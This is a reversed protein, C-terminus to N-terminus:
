LNFLYVFFVCTTIQLSRFQKVTRKYPYTHYNPQISYNFKLLGETVFYSTWIKQIFVTIMSQVVPSHSIFCLYLANVIIFWCTKLKMKCLLCTECLIDMENRM